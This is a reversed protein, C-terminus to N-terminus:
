AATNAIINAQPIPIVAPRIPPFTSVININIVSMTKVIGVNGTVITKDITILTLLSTNNPNTKLKHDQAPRAFAILDWTKTILFLSKISALLIIPILVKLM